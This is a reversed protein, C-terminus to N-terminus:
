LVGLAVARSPAYGSHKDCGASSHELAHSSVSCVVSTRPPARVGLSGKGLCVVGLAAGCDDDALQLAALGTANFSAVLVLCASPPPIPVGAAPSATDVVVCTVGRVAAAPCGGV